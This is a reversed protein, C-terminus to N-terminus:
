RTIKFRIQALAPFREFAQSLAKQLQTKFRKSRLAKVIQAYVSEALGSPASIAVHLEDMVIRKKM